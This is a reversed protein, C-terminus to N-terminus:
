CWMSDLTKFLQIGKM